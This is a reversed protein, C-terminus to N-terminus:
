ARVRNSSRSTPARMCLVRIAAERNVWDGLVSRPTSPNDHQVLFQMRVLNHEQPHLLLVPNWPCVMRPAKHATVEIKGHCFLNDNRTIGHGERGTLCTSRSGNHDGESLGHLKSTSISRETNSKPNPCLNQAALVCPDRFTQLNAM